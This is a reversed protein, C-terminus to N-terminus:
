RTVLASSKACASLARKVDDLDVLVRLKAQGPCRQKAKKSRRDPADGLLGAAVLLGLSDDAASACDNGRGVNPCARAYANALSQKSFVKDDTFAILTLAANLCLHAHHPLQAIAAIPGNAAGLTERIARAAVGLPCPTGRATADALHLALAKLCVDLVRRADGTTAAVKRACFELAPREFAADGARQTVIDVLQAYTYPRFVVTTVEGQAEAYEADDGFFARRPVDAANAIGVLALRSEPLSAVKFVRRLAEGACRLLSDIEDVIVLRVVGDSRRDKRKRKSPAAPAGGGGGGGDGPACAEALQKLAEKASLQSWSLKPFVGGGVARVFADGSSFSTGRLSVAVAAEPRKAVAVDRAREVHLTKGTGPAGCVYLSGGIRRELRSEFFELISGYESERHRTETPAYSLRLRAAVDADGSGAESAEEVSGRAKKPASM